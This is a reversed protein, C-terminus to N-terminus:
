ILRLQSDASKAPRPDLHAVLSQNLQSRLSGYDNTGHIPFGPPTTAFEARLLASYEGKAELLRDLTRGDTLALARNGESEPESGLSAPPVAACLLRRQLLTFRVTHMSGGSIGTQMVVTGASMGSQLRDRQVLNRPIAPTELPQESLILGGAALIRDALGRNSAPYVNDLGNALIAVTRGGADLAAQHCLADVGLALGSVIVWEDEALMSTIRRAVEEGFKTPERTGICAVARSLNAISGKAYLVPPPDPIQRLLYPYDLDGLGLVQIGLSDNAEIKRLAREVADVLSRTSLTGPAFGPELDANQEVESLTAYKSALRIAKM